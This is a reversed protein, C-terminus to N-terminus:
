FRWRDFLYHTICYIAQEKIVWRFYEEDSSKKRRRKLKDFILLL